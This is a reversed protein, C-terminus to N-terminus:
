AEGTTRRLHGSPNFTMFFKERTRDVVFSPNKRVFTEVSEMPGPGSTPLVPHGNINTDEVILYSSETVLPSYLDLERAVHAESHDSDLIVMVPSAGAVRQHVEAVVAPDTSSGVLYTIRPHTPRNEFQEIDITIVHGAGLLDCLSALFLASGGRNTGTEVIMHPRLETLIEQYIWCDLPCKQIPVGLWSTNKWTSEEKEYYLRHFADVFEQDAAALEHDTATDSHHAEPHM